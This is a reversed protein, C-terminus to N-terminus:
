FFLNESNFLTMWYVSIKREVGKNTGVFNNTMYTTITFGFDKSAVEIAQQMKMSNVISGGIAIHDLGVSQIEKFKKIIEEKTFKDPDVQPIIIPYEGRLSYIKQEIPGPKLM